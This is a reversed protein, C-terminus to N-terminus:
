ILFPTRLRLKEWYFATKEDKEDKPVPLMRVPPAQSRPGYINKNM